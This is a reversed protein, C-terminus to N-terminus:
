NLRKELDCPVVSPIGLNLLMFFFLIAWLPAMPMRTVLNPYAVFALGTGGDVVEGVPVKLEFALFGLVSFIAFGALVSTLANSLSVVIADRSPFDTYQTSCSVVSKINSRM